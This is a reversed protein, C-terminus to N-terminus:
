QGNGAESGPTLAAQFAALAAPSGALATLDPMPPMPSQGETTATRRFIHTVAALTEKRMVKNAREETKLKEITRKQTYSEIQSDGKHSVWKPPISRRLDVLEPPSEVHKIWNKLHKEQGLHRLLDDM